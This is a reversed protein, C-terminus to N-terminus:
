VINCDHSEYIHKYTSINDFYSSSAYTRTCKRSTVVQATDSNCQRHISSIVIVQYNCDNDENNDDNSENDVGAGATM